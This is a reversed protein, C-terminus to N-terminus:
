EAAPPLTINRAVTPTPVPHLRRGAPFDMGRAATRVTATVTM